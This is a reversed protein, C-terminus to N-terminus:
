NAFMKLHQCLSKHNFETWDLKQCEQSCYLAMKCKSCSPLTKGEKGCIHCLKNLMSTDIKVFKPGEVRITNQGDKAMRHYPNIISMKVNPRFTKLAEAMGNKSNGNTPWNYIAFRYVDGNEDEIVTQISYMKFAWDLIRVKLICGNYVKDKTPDMEKLTIKKPSSWNPPNPTTCPPKPATQVFSITARGYERAYSIFIERNQLILAKRKRDFKVKEFRSNDTKAVRETTTEKKSCIYNLELLNKGPFRYPLFCPLQNKEAAIGNEFSSVFKAEDGCNFYYHAKRYHCAPVYRHDNPAAALFADLAKITEETQKDNQLCLVIANSYLMVLSQPFNKLTMKSVKLAGKPNGYFTIFTGIYMEWLYEDKPFIKIYKEVIKILEPNKTNIKVYCIVTDLENPHTKFREKIVPKFLNPIEVLQHDLHIAKSLAAVLGAPNNSNFAKISETLNKWIDLHKKATDSGKYAAEKIQKGFKAYNLADYDESKFLNYAFEDFLVEENMIEESQDFPLLQRTESAKEM